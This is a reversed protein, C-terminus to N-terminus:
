PDKKSLNTMHALFLSIQSTSSNGPWNQKPMPQGNNSGTMLKM